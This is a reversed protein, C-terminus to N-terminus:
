GKLRFQKREAWGQQVARLGNWLMSKLQAWFTQVANETQV